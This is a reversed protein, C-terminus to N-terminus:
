RSSRTSMIFSSLKLRVQRIPSAQCVLLVCCRLLECFVPHLPTRQNAYRVVQMVVEVHVLKVVGLEVVDVEVVNVNVVDLDVAIMPAVLLVDRGEVLEVALVAHQVSVENEHAHTHQVHDPSVSNRCCDCDSGGTRCVRKVSHPAATPLWRERHKNDRRERHKNERCLPIRRM